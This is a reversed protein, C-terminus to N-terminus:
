DLLVICLEPKPILAQGLLRSHSLDYPSLPIVHVKDTAENISEAISEVLVIRSPATLYAIFVSEQIRDGYAQLLHSVRSRVASDNIDYAILWAHETALDAAKTAIPNANM